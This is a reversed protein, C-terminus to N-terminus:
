RRLPLASNPRSDGFESYIERNAPFPLRLRTRDLSGGGGAKRGASNLKGGDIMLGWHYKANENAVDIADSSPWPSAELKELHVAFHGEACTTKDREIVGHGHLEEGHQM